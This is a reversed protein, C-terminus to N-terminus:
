VIMQKYFSDFCISLMVVYFEKDLLENIEDIKTKKEM